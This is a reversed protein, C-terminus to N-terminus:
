GTLTYRKRNPGAKGPDKRPIGAKDLLRYLAPAGNIEFRELVEGVTLTEYATALTDRDIKIDKM